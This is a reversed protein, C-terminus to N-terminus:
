IKHRSLAYPIDFAGTGCVSVPLHPSFGLALPLLTTLSSPMSVGYSRSVPLRLFSAATFLGLRSNLLFMPRQLVSLHPIPASAQGTLHTYSVPANVRVNIIDYNMIDYSLSM